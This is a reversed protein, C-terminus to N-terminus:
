QNTQPLPMLWIGTTISSYTTGFYNNDVAFVFFKQNPSVWWGKINGPITALEISDEKTPHYYWIHEQLITATRELGLFFTAPKNPLEVIGSNDTNARPIAIKEGTETNFLYNQSDRLLLWKGDTSIDEVTYGQAGETPMAIPGVSLNEIDVLWNDYMCAPKVDPTFLTTVVAMHDDAVWNPPRIGGFCNDVLGLEMDQDENRLWLEYYYAPNMENDFRPPDLPIPESLPVKYLMYRHIPSVDFLIAGVPFTPALLVELEDISRPLYSISTTQGSALDYAWAQQTPSNQYFITKSDLSWWINDRLSHNPPLITALLIPLSQPPISTIPVIESSIATPTSIPFEILGAVKTPTGSAETPAIVPSLLSLAAQSVTLTPLPEQAVNSALTEINVADQSVCSAFVIATFFTILIFFNRVKHEDWRKMQEAKNTICM